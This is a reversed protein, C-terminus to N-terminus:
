KEGRLSDAYLSILHGVPIKGKGASVEKQDSLSFICGSCSTLIIQPAAEAIEKFKSKAIGISLDYHRINFTGGNGCCYNHKLPKLELGNIKDAIFGAEGILKEGASFPKFGPSNSLHCPVHFVAATKKELRGTKIDISKKELEKFFSWIGTLKSSFEMVEGYGEDNKDFYAPYLSGISYACSACSTVIRDLEKNAFARANKLALEKFSKKDGSSIFPLGCCGQAEPVFVTVGNETLASITDESIRPYIDNFVCGSFYGAKLGTEWGTGNKRGFLYDAGRIFRKGEPEPSSRKAIKEALPINAMRLVPRLLFNGRGKIVKLVLRDISFPNNIHKNLERLKIKEDIILRDVAVDNPCIKACRGCLLCSSMAESVNSAKLPPMGSEDAIILRVRGRPGFFENLTAAYSPCASLCKGCHVCNFYSKDKKSFKM